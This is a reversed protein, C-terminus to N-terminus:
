KELLKNVKDVVEQPEFEAKVLYDKAGLEEAKQIEVPQGSNSIIIVPIKSLQEDGHMIELVELGGMKPMVIDLLVLDLKEKKLEALGEEGDKATSVEYGERRLKEALMILLAEEDEIILVKKM